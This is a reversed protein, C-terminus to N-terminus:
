FPHLRLLAKKRKKIGRRTRWNGPLRHEYRLTVADAWKKWETLPDEGYPQPLMLRTFGPRCLQRQLYVTGPDYKKRRARWYLKAKKFINM